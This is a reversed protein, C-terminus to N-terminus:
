IITRYFGVTVQSSTAPRLLAFYASLYATM